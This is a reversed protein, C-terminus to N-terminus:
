LEKKFVGRSLLRKYGAKRYHKKLWFITVKVGEYEEPTMSATIEDFDNLAVVAAQDMAAMKEKREEDTLTM